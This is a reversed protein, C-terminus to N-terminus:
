GRWSEPPCSCRTVMARAMTESGVKRSQSSGVPSRSRLLASSIMARMSSSTPLYLLVIRITVCSGTTAARACVVSCRSFPTSMSPPLDLCATRAPPAAHFEAAQNEGIEEAFLNPEDEGDSRKGDCQNEERKKGHHLAGEAAARFDGARVAQDDDAADTQRLQHRNGMAVFDKRNRADLGDRVIVPEATNILILLIEKRLKYDVRFILALHHGLKHHRVVLPVVEQLVAHAGDGSSARGRAEMPLDAIADRDFRSEIAAAGGLEIEVADIVALARTAVLALKPQLPFIEVLIRGGGDLAGRSPVHDLEIAGVIGHGDGLGNIFLKGVGRKLGFGLRFRGEGGTERLLESVDFEQDEGNAAYDEERKQQDSSVGHGNGNAFANALEGDELGDAEGPARNQEKDKRLRDDNSENTAKETQREGVQQNRNDPQSKGPQQRRKHKGLGKQCHANPERENDAYDATQQRPNAGHAHAHNVRQPSDSMVIGM